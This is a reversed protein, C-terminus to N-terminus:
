SAEREVPAGRMEPVDAPDAREAERVEPLERASAEPPTSERKRELAVVPCNLAEALKILNAPTANRTGAEIEVLLTRAIEAREALQTQTLGAKERAWRVVDPEHNLRSPARRRNPM